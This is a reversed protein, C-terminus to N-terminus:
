YMKTGEEAKKIIGSEEYIERSSQDRLERLHIIESDPKTPM